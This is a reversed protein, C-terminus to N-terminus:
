KKGLAAAPVGVPSVPVQYSVCGGGAADVCRSAHILRDHLAISSIHTVEGSGLYM